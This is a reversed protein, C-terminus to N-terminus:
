GIRTQEGAIPHDFLDAGGPPERLLGVNHQIERALDHQGAEHVGVVVEVLGQGARQRGALVGVQEGPQPDVVRDPGAPRGLGRAQAGEDAQGLEGGRAAGGNEVM